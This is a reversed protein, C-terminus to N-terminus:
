SEPRLVPGLYGLLMQKVERIVDAQYQADRSAILLSILLKVVAKSVVAVLHARTKDLHPALMRFFEALKAIMEAEMDCSVAAIDASVDAGLLIHAYVPYKRYLSLFPDILRDLLVEPPLYRADEVFLTEFLLHSQQQYRDALAKLVADKDPFYRYLAGISIGAKEAIANTTTTEYGAEVFLEAATDLILDLTKQSRSQRPISRISNKSM